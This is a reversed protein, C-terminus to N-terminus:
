ITYSTVKAPDVIDDIPVERMINKGLRSDYIVGLIKGNRRGIEELRIVPEGEQNRFMFFSEVIIPTKDTGFTVEVDNPLKGKTTPECSRCIAYMDPNERPM